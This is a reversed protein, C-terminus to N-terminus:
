YKLSTLFYNYLMKFIDSKIEVLSNSLNLLRKMKLNVNAESSAVEESKALEVQFDILETTFQTLEELFLNINNVSMKIKHQLFMLFDDDDKALFTTYAIMLAFLNEIESVFLFSAFVMSQLLVEVSVARKVKKRLLDLVDVMVKYSILFANEQNHIQLLLSKESFYAVLRNKISEGLYFFMSSLFSITALTFGMKIQQKLNFLGRQWWPRYINEYKEALLKTLLDSQRSIANNDVNVLARSIENESIGTNGPVLRGGRFRKIFYGVLILVSLSAGGFLLTKKLRRKKEFAGRIVEANKLIRNLNVLNIKKETLLQDYFLTKEEKHLSLSDYSSSREIDEGAVVNKAEVFVLSFFLFCIGLVFGTFINVTGLVKIKM